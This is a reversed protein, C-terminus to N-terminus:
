SVLLNTKVLYPSLCNSSSPIKRVIIKFMGYRFLNRICNIAKKIDSNKYCPIACMLFTYSYIYIYIAYHFYLHKVIDMKDM